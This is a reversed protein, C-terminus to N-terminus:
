LISLLISPSLSSRQSTFFAQCCIVLPSEPVQCSILFFKSNLFTVAFHNNWKHVIFQGNPQSLSQFSPYMVQNTRKKDFRYMYTHTYIVTSIAHDPFTPPSDTGAISVAGMPEIFHSILTKQNGFGGLLNQSVMKILIALM